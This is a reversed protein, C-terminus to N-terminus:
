AGMEVFRMMRRRNYAVLFTAAGANVLGWM